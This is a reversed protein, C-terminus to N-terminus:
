VSAIYTNMKYQLTDISYYKHQITIAHYLLQATYHKGTVQAGLMQRCSASAAPGDWITVSRYPRQRWKDDNDDDDDDDDDGDGDDGDDDHFDYTRCFHHNKIVIVIM